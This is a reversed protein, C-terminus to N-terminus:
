FSRTVNFVFRGEALDKDGILAAEIGETDHWRLGLSFGGAMRTVGIDYFLYDLGDGGDRFTQEGVRASVDMNWPLAHSATLDYALGEVEDLFDEGFYNISYWVSPSLSLDGSTWTGIAYFESYDFDSESGPYTYLWYGVDYSFGTDGISDAFGIYPDLEMSNGSGGFDTNTAWVGAYIGSDHSWNIGAQVQPKENSNSVGRFMYDTAITLNGGFTGFTANESAQAPMAFGITMAALAAVLSGVRTRSSASPLNDNEIGM